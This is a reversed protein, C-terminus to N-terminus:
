RRLVLGPDFGRAVSMFRMVNSSYDVNFLCDQFDLFRRRLFLDARVVAGSCDDALQDVVGHRCKYTPSFIM